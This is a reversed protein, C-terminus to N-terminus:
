KQPRAARELVANGVNTLITRLAAHEAPLIKTTNFRFMVQLHGKPLNLCAHHNEGGAMDLGPVTKTRPEWGPPLFSPSSFTPNGFTNAFLQKCTKTEDNEITVKLKDPTGLFDHGAVETEVSIRCYTGRMPAPQAPIPKGGAYTWAGKFLPFAASKGCPELPITQTGPQAQAASHAANLLLAFCSVFCIAVAHKVVRQNSM